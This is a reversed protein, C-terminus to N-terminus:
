YKLFITQRFIGELRRELAKKEVRLRNSHERNKIKQIINKITTLKTESLNYIQGVKKDDWGLHEKVDKKLQEVEINNM